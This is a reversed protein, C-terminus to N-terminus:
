LCPSSISIITQFTTGFIRMIPSGNKGTLHIQVYIGINENRKTSFVHVSGAAHKSGHSIIEFGGDTVVLSANTTPM